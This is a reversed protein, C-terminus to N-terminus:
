FGISFGISLTPSLPHETNWTRIDSGNSFFHQLSPEVFLSIHPMLQYQLGLGAGVAWQIRPHLRTTTAEAHSGDPMLYYSRLTSRLPLHLTARTLAYVQLRRALTWHYTVSVPMGLYQVTQHQQLSIDSNGSCFDSTLRTYSLGTGIQWHRGLRRNLSLSVTFPMRHHSLTDSIMNNINKDAYPLQMATGNEGWAMDSIFLQDYTAGHVADIYAHFPAVRTNKESLYFSNAEADFVYAPTTLKRTVTTGVLNYDYGHVIVDDTAPVTTDEGIFLLSSGIYVGLIYPVYPLMQRPTSLPFVTISDGYTGDYRLVKLMDAHMMETNGNIDYLNAYSPTFPLVITESYGRGCLEDDANNYSPTMLYSIYHAKFAMPCLYDYGETLTVFDAKQDRVINRSNDLGTPVNDLLDLYYLCNPNAKTADIGPVYSINHLGRLDVAVAEEPVQLKQGDIMPLPLVAGNAMWYTNTGCRTTFCLSDITEM